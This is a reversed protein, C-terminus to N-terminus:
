VTWCPGLILCEHINVQFRRECLYGAWGLPRCANTRVGKQMVNPGSGHSVGVRSLAARRSKSGSNFQRTTCCSVLYPLPRELGKGKWVPYTDDSQEIMRVAYLRRAAWPTPKIFTSGSWFLRQAQRYCASRM